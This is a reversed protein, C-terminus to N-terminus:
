VEEAKAQRWLESLREEGITTPEAGERRALEDVRKVRAAFRGCAEELAEEADVDLLRAVNVASFLVDGAEHRTGEGLQIAEALEAVESDLDKMAAAVDGYGFGYDAVRKQVKASKMLAPLSAPVSDIRDAVSERGKEVNKLHEWNALVEGSSLDQQEGFVHPHRFILKKCIGDCVDNFSFHGAEAEMETHLAIQLLLDGLEECLLGTNGNDIAEAVEYTEEILNKRISVHTQERDWPCGGPARLISVIDLLDNVNYSDKRAFEM